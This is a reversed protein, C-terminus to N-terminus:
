QQRKEPYAELIAIRADLAKGELIKLKQELEKLKRTHGKTEEITRSVEVYWDVGRVGGRIPLENIANNAADVRQNAHEIAVKAHERAQALERKLWLLALALALGVLEAFPDSFQSFDM